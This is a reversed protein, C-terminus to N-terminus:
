SYLLRVLKPCENLSAFQAVILDHSVDLVLWAGKKTPESVNTVTGTTVDVCTVEM